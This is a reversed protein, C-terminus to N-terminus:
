GVFPSDYKLRWRVGDDEDSGVSGDNEMVKM